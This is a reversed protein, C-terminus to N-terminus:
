GGPQSWLESLALEIADFPEIRVTVDGAHVAAVVWVDGERRYSELTHAAPDVLWAHAVGHEGYLPLKEARDVSATSASLIECVWGPTVELPGTESMEFSSSRWGALDPVRLQDGFRIPPEPLIVWGGPGGRGRGFPGVLMDGLMAAVWAHRGGPRPLVRIQGDVIEAVATEPVEDLQEWLAWWRAEDAPESMGEM